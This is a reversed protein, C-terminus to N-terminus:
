GDPQRAIINGALMDGKFDNAGGGMVGFGGDIFNFQKAADDFGVGRVGTPFMDHTQEVRKFVLTGIAGVDAHDELYQTFVQQTQNLAPVVAADGHRQNLLDCFLYKQTQVVHMPLTANNMGVQFRLVNQDLDAIDLLDDLSIDFFFGLFFLLFLLVVAVAAPSAASEDRPALRQGAREVGVKGVKLVARLM